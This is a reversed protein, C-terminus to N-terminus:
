VTWSHADLLGRYYARAASLFDAFGEAVDRRVPPTHRKFLEAIENALELESLSGAGGKFVRVRNMLHEYSQPSV